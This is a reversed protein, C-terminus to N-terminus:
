IDNLMHKQCKNICNVDIIKNDIKDWNNIIHVWWAIKSVYILNKAELKGIALMLVLHNDM